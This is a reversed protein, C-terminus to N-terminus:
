SAKAEPKTSTEVERYAERKMLETCIRCINALAFSRCAAVDLPLSGEQSRDCFGSLDKLRAHLEHNELQETVIPGLASRPTRYQIETEKIAPVSMEKPAYKEGEGELLWDRRVSVDQERLSSILNELLEGGPNSKEGKWLDNVYGKSCRMAKALATQKGQLHEDTLWKLRDVLTDEAM